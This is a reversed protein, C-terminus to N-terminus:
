EQPEKSSKTSETSSVASIPSQTLHTRLGFPALSIANEEEREDRPQLQSIISASTILILGWFVRGHVTEHMLVWALIVAIPIQLYCLLAYRTSPLKQAAYVQTFNGVISVLVLGCLPWFLQVPAVTFFHGGNLSIWCLGVLAASFNILSSIFTVRFSLEDRMRRAVIIQGAVGFAVCFGAIVGLNLVMHGGAFVLWLGAAGLLLTFVNRKLLRGKIVAKALVVIIPYTFIMLYAQSVPLYAFTTIACVVCFIKLVSWALPYGWRVPLFREKKAYIVASSVILQGLSTILIIGWLAIKPSLSRYFLDNAAFALAAIVGSFTPLLTPHLNFM